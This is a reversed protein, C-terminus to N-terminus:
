TSEDSSPSFSREYYVSGFTAILVANGILRSPNTGEGPPSM